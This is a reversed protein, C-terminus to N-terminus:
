RRGLFPATAVVQMPREAAAVFSDGPKLARTGQGGCLANFSIDVPRM